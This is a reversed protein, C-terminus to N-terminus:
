FVAFINLTLETNHFSTFLCVFFALMQNKQLFQVVLYGFLLHFADKNLHWMLFLPILRDGNSLGEHKLPDLHPIDAGATMAFSFCTSM